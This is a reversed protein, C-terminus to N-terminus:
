NFKFTKIIELGRQAQELSTCFMYRDKDMVYLALVGNDKEYYAAVSFRPEDIDTNEILYYNDGKEIITDGITDAFELTSEMEDDRADHITIVIDHDYHSKLVRGAYLEKTDGSDFASVEAKSFGEMIQAIVGYENLDVMDYDLVAKESANVKKQETKSDSKKKQDEKKEENGCSFLFFPVVVLFLTKRM